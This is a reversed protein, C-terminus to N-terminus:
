GEAREKEEYERIIQEILYPRQLAAIWASPINEYGYILAALGGAIAATTDTDWGLNVAMLVAESYSETRMICWLAAELSSIVYGDSKLEVEPISQVPFAIVRELAQHEENPCVIDDMLLVLDRRMKRYAEQKDYGNIIYETVKLYAMCALASRIHPHTLANAQSVIEFQEFIDRGKIYVILPLIRMLGGNGNVYEDGISSLNALRAYDQRNLISRVKSLYVRTTNGVDFAQDLASMYGTDLWAVFREAQDKLNFGNLLSKALCLTLSTDDSWLGIEDADIYEDFLGPSKLKGMDLVPNRKRADRPQFQVPFGLADGVAVGYLIAQMIKSKKM